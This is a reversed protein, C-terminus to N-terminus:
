VPVNAGQSLRPSRGVDGGGKRQNLKGFKAGLLCGKVGPYIQEDSIAADPMTVNHRKGMMRFGAMCLAMSTPEKKRRDHLLHLTRRRLALRCTGRRSPEIRGSREYCDTRGGSEKEVFCAV